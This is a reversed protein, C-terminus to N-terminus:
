LVPAFLRWINETLVQREPRELWKELAVRNSRAVDREFQEELQTAIGEDYVAVGVEFNLFLSRTDFNATGVLSWQSDITLTKAHMLGHQYEYIEVGARLLSEYYSRGAALTWFYACRSSLLLRVRVGQRAATELSTVLSEPPVFYSATLLIQKRADNIAAFLVSHFTSLDGIPEGVLVQAVIEGCAQPTPFVEALLLEENTAFLWDEVFVQQLQLVAPGHLRLHTDRWFGLQPNKGLYEDGINMGGTFGVQGDVVLIKRHSRLNVSWRHLFARGPLFSAVLIGAERMPRLFRRSLTMSGIGDYLFRVAVGERAKQILMDRLRTGTRDPRWIYYELHLTQSASEIAQEMLALTRPTENLVEIRNGFTAPMLNIQTAMRLLGNRLPERSNEPPSEFQSLEPLIPGLVRRTQRKMGVAKREVRNIGFVLFLLGGLVPLVVILLIWAVSSTPERKKLLLVWRLLSLSLVYALAAAWLLYPM